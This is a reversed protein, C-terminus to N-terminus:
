VAQKAHPRKQAFSLVSFTDGALMVDANGSELNQFSLFYIYVKTKPKKLLNKFMIRVIVKYTTQFQM